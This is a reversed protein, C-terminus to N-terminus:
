NKDQLPDIIKGIFIITNTDKHQICFIFPHNCNFVIRSPENGGDISTVAMIVATAAAAETGEENVDIYAKHIVTDIKLDTKGTIGSFDADDTFAKEMGLKKLYDNLGYLPTEIKFKPLYIDVNVKHLASIWENYLEENLSDLITSINNNEKPLLIFMSLKDGSYPLELIQLEDTETYNFRNQTEKLIMNPVSIVEESPLKFDRETTNTQDFQIKWTGKFYIANTLILRCLEPNIASSPILDKILNNTKNEVWQNIIEAAQEPNSFDINSIEGGYFQQIVNIYSNLLNYNNKIWLANATSINYEQNYNLYEYLNKVYNHYTENDQAIKLIQQMENATEGRAGEFTMSLATFISYPSFFINDQTYENNFQKLLNFTFSNITEYYSTDESFVITHDIYPSETEDNENTVNPTDNTLIVFSIGIIILCITIGVIIKEINKM